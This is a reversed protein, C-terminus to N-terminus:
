ERKKFLNLKLNLYSSKDYENSSEFFSIMDEIYSEKYNEFHINYNKGIKIRNFDKLYTKEKYNKILNDINNIESVMNDM